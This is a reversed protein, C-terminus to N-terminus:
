VVSKRDPFGIDDAEAGMLSAVKSAVRARTADNVRQGALGTGKARAYRELAALHVALVPSQGGSALHTVGDLGLFDSKSALM